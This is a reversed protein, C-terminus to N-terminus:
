INPLLRVGDDALVTTLTIGMLAEVSYLDAYIEGTTKIIGKKIAVNASHFKSYLGEITCQIANAEEM